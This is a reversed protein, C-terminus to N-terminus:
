KQAAKAMDENAVFEGIRDRKEISQIREPIISKYFRMYFEKLRLRSIRSTPLGMLTGSFVFLLAIFLAGLSMLAIQLVMLKDM